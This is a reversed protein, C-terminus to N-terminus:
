SQVAQATELVLLHIQQSNPPLKGTAPDVLHLSVTRVGPQGLLLANAQQTSMGAILTALHHLQEESFQYV